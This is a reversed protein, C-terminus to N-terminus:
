ANLYFSGARLVLIKNMKVCVLTCVYCSNIILVLVHVHIRFNFLFLIFIKQCNKATFCPLRYLTKAGNEVPLRTVSPLPKSINLKMYDKTM